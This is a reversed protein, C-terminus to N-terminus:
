GSPQTKRRLVVPEPYFGAPDRLEISNLDVPRLELARNHRVVPEGMEKVAEGLISKIELFARDSEYRVTGTKPLGEHLMEFRGNALITLEIKGLTRAVAPNGGEPVPLDRDGTWTGGYDFRPGCSASGALALGVSLTM